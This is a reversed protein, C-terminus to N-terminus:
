SATMLNQTKGAWQNEEQDLLRKLLTLSLIAMTPERFPFLALAVVALACLSVLAASADPSQVAVRLAAWLLGALLFLGIAGNELLVQLYENHASRWLIVGRGGPGTRKGPEMIELHRFSGFGRGAVWQLATNRKLHWATAKWAHWRRTATEGPDALAYVFVPSLLICFILITKWSFLGTHWMWVLYATLAALLGLISKLQFLTYVGAGLGICRMRASLHRSLCAAPLALAMWAATRGTNGLSGWKYVVIQRGDQNLVINSKDLLWALPDILWAQSFILAGQVVVCLWIAKDVFPENWKASKLWLIALGLYLLHTISDPPGHLNLWWGAVLWVPLTAAWFRLSSIRPPWLHSISAAM